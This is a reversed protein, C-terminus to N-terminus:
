EFLEDSAKIGGHDRVVLMRAALRQLYADRSSRKYETSETLDDRSIAKPYARILEELIVKEGIPLRSLHWDQLAEGTPLPEIEPLAAIGADTAVVVGADADVYGKERLRQIYADRSKGSTPELPIDGRQGGLIPIKFESDEGNPLLRLGYWIGVPDVVVVQKRAELLLEVLKGALYTKGSGRRGVIGYTQTAADAPLTLDTCLKLMQEETRVGYM